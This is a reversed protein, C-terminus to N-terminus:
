FCKAPTRVVSTIYLARTVRTKMVMITTTMMMVTKMAQAAAIVAIVMSLMVVAVTSAAAATAVMGMEWTWLAISSPGTTEAHAAFPM